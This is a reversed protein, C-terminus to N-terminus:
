QYDSFEIMTVPADADGKFHQTNSVLFEMLTPTPEGPALTPNVSPLEAQQTGAAQTAGASGALLPQVIPRGTYGLLLGVVLMFIALVPTLWARSKPEDLPEEEEVEEPPLLDNLDNLPEGPPQESIPTPDPNDSM